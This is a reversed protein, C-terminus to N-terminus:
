NRFHYNPAVSFEYNYNKVDNRSSYGLEQLLAHNNESEYDDVIAKVSLGLGFTSVGKSFSLKGGHKTYLTGRTIDQRLLGVNEVDENKVELWQPQNLYRVQSYANFTYRGMRKIFKLANQVGYTPMELKQQRIVDNTLLQYDHSGTPMCMWHM